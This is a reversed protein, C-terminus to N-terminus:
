LESLFEKVVTMKLLLFYLSIENKTGVCLRSICALCSRSKQALFDMCPVVTVVNLTTRNGRFDHRDQQLIKELFKAAATGQNIHWVQGSIQAAQRRSKQALNSNYPRSLIWVTRGQVQQVKHRSICAV